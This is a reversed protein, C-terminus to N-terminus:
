TLTLYPRPEEAKWQTVGRGFWWRAALWIALAGAAGAVGDVAYHWGLSISLMFILLGAASAVFTWRRAFEWVALVIWATTAIHLSPMASIGAGGGFSQNQFHRWLYDAVESTNQEMELGSFRPGYGLEAYFVPGAAPLLVHVLPGFVSWLMFYTLLIANKRPSPAGALVMILTVIMMAFWGRHYFIALPTTNLWGLLQWPDVGIVSRDFAALYPDAWFPVLHNLLPKVWMFAIMNLGALATCVSLFTIQGAHGRLYAICHALPHEVGRRMMCLIPPLSALGGVAAAALMWLPLLLLTPVLQSYRPMEALSFVSL